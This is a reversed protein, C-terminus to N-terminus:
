NGLAKLFNMFVPSPWSMISRIGQKDAHERLRDHHYAMVEPDMPMDGCDYMRLYGDADRAPMVRSKMYNNPSWPIDMVGAECARVVGIAVDGDGMELIKDMIPRVEKGILDCERKFEPLEDLRIQRAMYVAMRTNRLGAANAEPTLALPKM